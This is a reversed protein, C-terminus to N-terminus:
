LWLRASRPLDPLRGQSIIGTKASLMATLHAIPRGRGGSLFGHKDCVDSVREGSQGGHADDEDACSKEEPGTRSGCAEPNSGPVIAPLGIRVQRDLADAVDEPSIAAMRIAAM